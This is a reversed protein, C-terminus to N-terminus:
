PIFRCNIFHFSCLGITFHFLPRSFVGAIVNEPTQSYMEGFEFVIIFIASISVSPFTACGHNVIGTVNVTLFILYLAEALPEFGCPIVRNHDKPINACIVALIFSIDFQFFRQTFEFGRDEADVSVM